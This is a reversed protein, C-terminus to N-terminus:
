VRIVNINKLREEEYREQAPKKYKGWMVSKRPIVPKPKEENFDADNYLEAMRKNRLTPKLKKGAIIDAMLSSRPLEKGKDEELVGMAERLKNATEALAEPLEPVDGWDDDNELVEEIKEVIEPIAEPEEIMEKVLEPSEVIEKLEEVLDDVFEYNPENDDEPEAIAKRKSVKVNKRKPIRKKSVKKVCKKRTGNPCRKARAGGSLNRVVHDVLSDM